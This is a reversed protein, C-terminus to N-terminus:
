RTRAAELHATFREKLLSYLASLNRPHIVSLKPGTLVHLSHGEVVLKGAKFGRYGMSLRLARFSLPVTELRLTDGYGLKGQIEVAYSLIPAFIGHEEFMTYPKIHESFFETRGHEFYIPYASHHVVGMQDTEAYRIPILSETLLYSM